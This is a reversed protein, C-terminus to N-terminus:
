GGGGGRSVVKCRCTCADSRPQHAGQYVGQQAGGDLEAPEVEFGLLDRPPRARVHGVDAAERQKVVVSHVSHRGGASGQQRPQSSRPEEGSERNATCRAGAARVAQTTKTSRTQQWRTVNSSQRYLDTCASFGEVCANRYSSLGSEARSAM